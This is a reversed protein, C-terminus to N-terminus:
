EVRTVKSMSNLLEKEMQSYSLEIITPKAVIVYNKAQVFNALNMRVIARLQRKIRNRVHAKGVKKSVSFGIKINGFKNDTYLVVLNKSFIPQGNKHIYRFDKRKKIRNKEKLM